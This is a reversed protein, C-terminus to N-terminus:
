TSFSILPVNHRHVLSKVSEFSQLLERTKKPRDFTISLGTATLRITGAFGTIHCDCYTVERDHKVKLDPIKADEVADIFAELDIAKPLSFELTDFVDDFVEGFADSVVQSPDSIADITRIWIVESLDDPNLSVSVSYTFYPTIISGAGANESSNLDRRSLDFSEKLSDYVENLDSSLENSALGAAFMEATDNLYTPVHFSKKWGSLSKLGSTQEATFSMETVLSDGQNADQRRKALIPNLDALRFDSSAAGYMWPTQQKGGVYATKLTRPVEKQLHNQLSSSVLVGRELALPANGNFAEILHYTWVGHKLSNSPYSSENSKCATFCVCHTASDLFQELEHQKLNDYIGRTGSPVHIGSECCDLFLAVRSCPSNQLRKFIPNLAVSTADWDSDQTDHCTIFNDGAKSFGHGAYYFYLIDDSKLRDIVRNVKSEIVAKTAQNDILVVQDSSDFGHLALAKSLEEADNRAYRVDDISHDSYKEVAILIAIKTV